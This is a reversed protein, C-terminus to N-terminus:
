KFDTVRQQESHLKKLALTSTGCQVEDFRNWSFGFNGRCHWLNTEFICSLCVWKFSVFQLVCSSFFICAVFTQLTQWPHRIPLKATQCSMIRRIFMWQVCCIHRCQSTANCWSWKSAFVAFEALLLLMVVCFKCFSSIQFLCWDISCIIQLLLRIWFCCHCSLLLGCCGCCVPVVLRFRFTSTKHKCVGQGESLCQNPSCTLWWSSWM